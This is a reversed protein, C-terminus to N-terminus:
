FFFFHKVVGWLNNQLRKRVGARDRGDGTKILVGVGGWGFLNKGATRFFPFFVYIRGALNLVQPSCQLPRVCVADPRLKKKKQWKCTM